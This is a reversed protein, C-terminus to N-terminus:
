SGGGPVRWMFPDASRHQADNHTKEEDSPPRVMQITASGDAAAHVVASMGGEHYSSFAVIRGRLADMDVAADNGLCLVDLRFPENLADRYRLAHPWLAPVPARGPWRVDIRRNRSDVPIYGTLVRGKM